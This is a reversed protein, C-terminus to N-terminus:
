SVDKSYHYFAISCLVSSILAFIGLGIILSIGAVIIDFLGQLTVLGMLM